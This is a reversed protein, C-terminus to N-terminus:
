RVNWSVLPCGSIEAPCRESHVSENELRAEGRVVWEGAKVQFGGPGPWSRSNGWRRPVFSFPRRFERRGEWTKM